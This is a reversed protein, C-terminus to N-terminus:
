HFLFSSAESVGGRQAESEESDTCDLFRYKDAPSPWAVLSGLLDNGCRVSHPISFAHLIPAGPASSNSYLIGSGAEGFSNEVLRKTFAERFFAYFSRRKPADLLFLIHHPVIPVMETASELGAHTFVCLHPPMPMPAPYTSPFTIGRFLGLCASSNLQKHRKKM